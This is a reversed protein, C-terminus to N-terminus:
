KIEEVLLENPPTTQTNEIKSSIEKVIPESVVVTKIKPKQIITKIEPQAEIQVEPVLQTHSIIKQNTVPEKEYTVTSTTKPEYVTTYTTKKYIVEVPERTQRIIPACGNCNANNIVAPTPIPRPEPAQIQVTAVPVVIPHTKEMYPRQAVLRVRHIKPRQENYVYVKKTPSQEKVKKTIPCNKPSYIHDNCDHNYEQYIAGETCAGLFIFLSLIFKKM